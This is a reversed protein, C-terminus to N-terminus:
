SWILAPSNDYSLNWPTNQKTELNEIRKWQDPWTNLEWQMLTKNVSSNHCILIAGKMIISKLKIFIDLTNNFAEGGLVKLIMKGIWFFFLVGGFWWRWCCCFDILIKVSFCWKYIPKPHISKKISNSWKEGLFGLKFINEILICSKMQQVM